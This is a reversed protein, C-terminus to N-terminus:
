NEFYIIETLHYSRHMSNDILPTVLQDLAYILQLHQFLNVLGNGNKIGYVHMLRNHFKVM